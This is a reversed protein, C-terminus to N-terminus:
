PNSPYDALAHRTWNQPIGSVGTLFITANPDCYFDGTASVGSLWEEMSRTATKTASIRVEKLKSCDRFMYAYCYDELTTAPLEPAKMLSTCGEFMFRYCSPALTIAPLKPAQTLAGCNYFMYSYCRKALTMAPLEPAKMLSSCGFFMSSYCEDALTMAPLEPAQTLAKCGSFMYGYWYYTLNTAPLAPAQTLAKCGSFMGYYCYPSLANVLLPAKTLSSCDEFLRFMVYDGDYTSTSTFSSRVISYANHWAEIKGTMVFQVFNSDSQPTPHNKCRFYVSEGKNLITETGLTYDTWNTGDTSTQYTNSLTGNKTLTVSSNDEIARLMLPKNPDDVAPAEENINLRRWGKPIGSESDTPFITTNPDCYFDGTASVGSLWEKLADSATKTASIRVEKLKSCDRFMYAYCYDELTTAPLEPAKMLSTCGEFMFRYCSPALTIAPLKPAQTLAGCNYFMYSYCRKALTMAPLEPAKMLSSCGFFMSSYCEDALTMAPLEPAQTLAKCGSFM